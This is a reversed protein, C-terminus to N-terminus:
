HAEGRKISIQTPSEEPSAQEWGPGLGCGMEVAVGPSGQPCLERGGSFLLM